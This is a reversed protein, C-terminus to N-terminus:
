KECLVGWHLTTGEAVSGLFMKRILPNEVIINAPIIHSFKNFHKHLEGLIDFGDNVFGKESVAMRGLSNVVLLRNSLSSVKEIVGIVQPLPIHQFVYVAYAFDVKESFDLGFTNFRESSVYEKAIDRMKPSSDVGIISVKDNCSLVEKALRGVGCGYDLVLKTELTLQNSIIDAFIPTEIKWREEMTFGNCNGVVCHRGEEFNNPLFMLATEEKKADEVKQEKFHYFVTSM